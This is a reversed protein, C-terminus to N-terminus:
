NSNRKAAYFKKMSASRKALTEASLNARMKAASMNARHSDSFQRGKLAFSLKARHEKSLSKGKRRASMIFSLKARCEESPNSLGDGGDTGNTLNFGSDRGEFIATKEFWQWFDKPIEALIELVPVGDCSRIWNYLHTKTGRKALSQHDHFRAIPDDAKGIYRIESTAPDKLAYIFTTGM